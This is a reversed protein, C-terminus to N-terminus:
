TSKYVSKLLHHQFGQCFLHYFIFIHQFAVFLPKAASSSPQTQSNYGYNQYPTSEYIPYSYSKLRRDMFIRPFDKSLSSFNGPTDQEDYKVTITKTVKRTLTGEATKFVSQSQTKQQYFYSICVADIGTDKAKMNNFRDRESRLLSELAERIKAYIGESEQEHSGNKSANKKQGRALAETFVDYNGENLKYNLEENVRKEKEFELVSRPQYEAEDFFKPPLLYYRNFEEDSLDVFKNLNTKFRCPDVEKSFVMRLSTVTQQDGKLDIHASLNHEKDMLKRLHTKFINFRYLYEDTTGYTKGNVILYKSFLDLYYQDSYQDIPSAPKLGPQLLFASASVAIMAFFVTRNIM